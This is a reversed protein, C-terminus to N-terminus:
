RSWILECMEQSKTIKSLREDVVEFVNKIYEAFRKDVENKM